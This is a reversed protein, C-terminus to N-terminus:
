PPSQRNKTKSQANEQRRRVWEWRCTHKQKRTHTHKRTQTHKAHTHPPTRPPTRVRIITFEVFFTRNYFFLNYLNTYM